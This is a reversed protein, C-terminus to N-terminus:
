SIKLKFLKNKNNFFLSGYRKVKDSKEIREKSKDFELDKSDIESKEIGSEEIDNKVVQKKEINRLEKQSNKELGKKIDEDSFGASKALQMQEPTLSASFALSCILLLSYIVRM